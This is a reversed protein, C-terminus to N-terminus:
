PLPQLDLFVGHQADLHIAQLLLGHLILPPHSAQDRLAQVPPLRSGGLEIELTTPRVSDEAHDDLAPM